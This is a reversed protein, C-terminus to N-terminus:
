KELYLIAVSPDDNIFPNKCKVGSFFRSFIVPFISDKRQTPLRKEHKNRMEPLFFTWRRWPLLWGFRHSHLFPLLLPFFYVMYVPFLNYDVNDFMIFLLLLFRFRAHSPLPFYRFWLTSRVFLVACFGFMGDDDDDDYHLSAVHFLLGPITHTRENAWKKRRKREWEWESLPLSNRKWKTRMTFPNQQFNWFERGCFFFLIAGCFFCFRLSAWLLLNGVFGVHFWQTNSRHCALAVKQTSPVSTFVSCKLRDEIKGIFRLTFSVHVYIKLKKSQSRSSSKIGYWRM